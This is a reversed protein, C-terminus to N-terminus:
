KLDSSPIEHAGQDSTMFSYWIQHYFKSVIELPIKVLTKPLTKSKKYTKSRYTNNRQFHSLIRLSSILLFACLEEDWDSTSIILFLPILWFFSGPTTSLIVLALGLQSVLIQLPMITVFCSVYLLMTILPFPIVFTFLIQSFEFNLHKYIVVCM